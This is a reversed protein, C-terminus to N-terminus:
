RYSAIMMPAAPDTVDVIHQGAGPKLTVRGCIRYSMADPEWAICILEDPRAKAVVEDLDRAHRWFRFRIVLVVM